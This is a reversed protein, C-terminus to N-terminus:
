LHDNRLTVGKGIDKQENKEDQAHNAKIWDRLAVFIAFRRSGGRGDRDIM